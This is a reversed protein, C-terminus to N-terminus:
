AGYSKPFHYEYIAILTKNQQYINGISMKIFRKTLVYENKTCKKM